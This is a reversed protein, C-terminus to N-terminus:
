PAYALASGAESAGEDGAELDPRAVSDAFLSDGAVLAAAEVLLGTM